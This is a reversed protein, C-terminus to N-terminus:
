ELVTITLKIAQLRRSKVQPNKLLSDIARKIAVGLTGGSGEAVQDAHASPLQPLFATVRVRKVNAM